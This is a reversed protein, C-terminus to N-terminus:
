AAKRMPASLLMVRCPAERVIRVIPDPRALRPSLSLQSRPAGVVILETRDSIAEAVISAGFDRARVLRAVTKVGFSDGTAGAQELLRWAAEEDDDFRADLPLMPPVEIVSIATIRAHDDVALRCAIQLAEFSEHRADLPVLLRYYGPERGPRHAKGFV